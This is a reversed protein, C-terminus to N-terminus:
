TGTTSEEQGSGLCPHRGENNEGSDCEQRAVIKEGGAVPRPWVVVIITCLCGCGVMWVSEYM